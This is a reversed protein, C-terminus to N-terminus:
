MFKPDKIGAKKFGKARLICAACKGCGPSIGKYCTHTWKMFNLIGLKKTLLVIEKKSKNILPTHIKFKFEMGYSLAREMAKIFEKRCDPYGSYDVQSVGIVIDRIGWTYAYSAAITLFLINRGPVFTSPLNKNIKDKKYLSINKDILSTSKIQEYENIKFIRHMVGALKAIKKASSLEISHRQGYDFSIAIIKKFKTKAWFLSTTSDQGGSLLVIAQPKM